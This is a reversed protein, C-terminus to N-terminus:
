LSCVTKCVVMEFAVFGTKFAAFRAKFVSGPRTKFAVVVIVLVVSAALVVEVVIVLVVVVVTHGVRGKPSVRVGADNSVTGLLWVKCHSAVMANGIALM